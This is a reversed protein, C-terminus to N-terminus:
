IIFLLKVPLYMLLGTGIFYLFFNAVLTISEIQKLQATKSNPAFIKWMLTLIKMIQSRFYLRKLKNKLPINQHKLKM